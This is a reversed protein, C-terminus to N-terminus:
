GRGGILRRDFGSPKQCSPAKWGDMAGKAGASFGQVHPLAQEKMSPPCVEHSPDESCEVLHTDGDFGVGLDDGNLVAADM